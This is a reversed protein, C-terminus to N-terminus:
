LCTSAKNFGQLESGDYPQLYAKKLGLKEFADQYLMNVFSGKDILCRAVDHGRIWTIIVLPFIENSGRNM